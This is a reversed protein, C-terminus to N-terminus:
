RELLERFDQLDLLETMSINPHKEVYEDVLETGLWLGILPPVKEGKFVVNPDPHTYARIIMPDTSTLHERSKMWEWLREKNKRCWNEEEETYDMLEENSEIDLIQRVVWNIKGRYVIIDFLTRFKTDWRFPYLSFLYFTFCDPLIREPTMSRLQSDYYYKRYLPYDAGMYKDISFGLLSDEVVVSQNLASIQSYVKPIPIDPIEKRLAKFGKALGKEIFSMDEYKALADEMLHVLVSDSYYACLHENIEPDNVRGLVLIDEILLKTARPFDLNMKQLASVSNLVTAEYQLHDYRSVKMGVNGSSMDVEQMDFHCATCVFMTLLILIPNRM